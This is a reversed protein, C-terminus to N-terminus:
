INQHFKCRYLAHKHHYLLSCQYIQHFLIHYSKLSFKVYSVENFYERHGSIYGIFNLAKFFNKKITQGTIKSKTNSLNSSQLADPVNKIYKVAHLNNSKAMFNLYKNRKISQCMRETNNNNNLCQKRNTLNCNHNYM